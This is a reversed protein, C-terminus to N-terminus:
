SCFAIGALFDLYFFQMGLIRIALLHRHHRHKFIHHAIRVPGHVGVVVDFEHLVSRISGGLGKCGGIILVTILVHLHTITPMEHSVAKVLRM